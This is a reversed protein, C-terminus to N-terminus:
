LHVKEKVTFKNLKKFPAKNGLFFDKDPSLWALIAFSFTLLTLRLFLHLALYSGPQIVGGTKHVAVLKSSTPKSAKILMWKTLSLSMIAQTKWKSVQHKFVLRLFVAAVQKHKQFHLCNKANQLKWSKYSRSKRDCICPSKEEQPCQIFYYELCWICKKLVVWMGSFMGGENLVEIFIQFWTSHQGCKIM